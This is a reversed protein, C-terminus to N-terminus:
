PAPPDDPADVVPPQQRLPGRDRPYPNPGPGGPERGGQEEDKIAQEARRGVLTMVLIGVIVGAALATKLHAVMLTNPDKGGTTLFGASWAALLVGLITCGGAVYAWLLALARGAGLKGVLAPALPAALFVVVGCCCPEV